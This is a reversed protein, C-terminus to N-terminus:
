VKGIIYGELIDNKIRKLNPRTTVFTSGPQKQAAHAALALSWFRDAHGSVGTESEADFRINNSTTTIKKVSHLDATLDPVLEDAPIFLKKDEFCRLLNFAMEEKRRGAFNIEEVRTRGFADRAEEALQMGLGTADICARYFNPLSLVSFLIDKQTKFKANEIIIMDRTYLFGNIEELITIVSLHKKRAIDYGVFLPGTLEHWPKMVDDARCSEILEYTLFASSEDIPNCCFEEQWTHEDFCDEQLQKLWQEIEPTTATKRLIKSVLGENAATYIDTKHHSWKKKGKKVQETFKYFLSQKGNHSSLIRLDDGWTTVPKAAKWLQAAEQHFAFEDLVVKGGKSRFAKPSSSLANIRTGNTFRVSLTKVDDIVQEGLDEAPYNFLKGWESAYIIYEKAASEDASSFWVNNCKGKICDTVDEYAQVYSAGIRRSKEWIKIPATDKLWREQYPLFYKKTDM